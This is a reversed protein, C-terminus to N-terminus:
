DIIVYIKRNITKATLYATDLAGSFTNTAKIEQIKENVDPILHSYRTFFAEVTAVIKRNFDSIFGSESDTNLGSFNFQM